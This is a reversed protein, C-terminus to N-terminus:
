DRDEHPTTYTAMQSHGDVICRGRVVGRRAFQMGKAMMWRRVAGILNGLFPAVVLHTM